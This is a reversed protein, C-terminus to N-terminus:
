STYFFTRSVSYNGWCLMSAQIDLLVDITRDLWSFGKRHVSICVCVCVSVCVCMCVCVCVCVNGRRNTKRRRLVNFSQEATCSVAPLVSLVVKAFNWRNSWGFLTLDSFTSQSVNVDFYRQWKKKHIKDDNCPISFVMRSNPFYM